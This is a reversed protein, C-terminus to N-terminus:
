SKTNLNALGFRKMLMRDLTKGPIWRKYAPYLHGGHGTRVVHPPNPDIAANVIDRAVEEATAANQQSANARAEIGKRIPEYLSGDELALQQTANDGFASKVGGPQVIVVKVGFPALEMRLSDSLCHLAAKSACYVGAFPTSLVGSISGVNVICGSKREVMHPAVAQIVAIQGTVNTELQRRLKDISVELVPGMQGYGANNILVDIRGSTAVIHRVAQEISDEDTVDLQQTAIREMRLDEISDLRRATAWVKYDREAFDHVLARGIGSSCGTIVVVQERTM